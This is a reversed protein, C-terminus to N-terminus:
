GTDWKDLSLVCAGRSGSALIGLVGVQLRSMVWEVHNATRENMLMSFSVPAVMVIIARFNAEGGQGGVDDIRGGYTVWKRAASASLHWVGFMWAWTFLMFHRENRVAFLIGIVPIFLLICTQVKVQASGPRHVSLQAGVITMLTFGVFMWFGSNKLTAIIPHSPKPMDGMEDNGQEEADEIAKVAAEVTLHENM